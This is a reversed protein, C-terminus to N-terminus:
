QGGIEQTVGIDEICEVIATATSIGSDGQVISVDKKVIKVGSPIQDLTLKMAKNAAISRAEDINIENEAIEYEFYKDRIIGIPMIM